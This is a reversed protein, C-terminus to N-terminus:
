CYSHMSSVEEVMYISLVVLSINYMFLLWTPVRFAHRYQMYRSGFIVISLYILILIIVPIPDTWLLFWNKTRPDAYDLALKYSPIQKKLWDNIWTMIQCLFIFYETILFFNSKDLFKM